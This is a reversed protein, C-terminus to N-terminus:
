DRAAAYEEVRVGGDLDRARTPVFRRPAYPGDFLPVGAGLVLPNRKVVLADIEDRVAAALRGGGALWVGAGDGAKLDRVLAVPDAVVTVDPDDVQLTTSVVYQALHPYPSTLGAQLGPEYTARGMVVTDFRRNPTDTLGLPGRAHAPLTEPFEALVTERLAGEFPFFDFEGGPGAIFGDLTAAVYYTLSRM